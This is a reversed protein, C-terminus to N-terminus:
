LHARLSSDQDTKECPTLSPTPPAGPSGVKSHGGAAKIAQVSTDLVSVKFVRRRSVRCRKSAPGQHGNQMVSHCCGSIFWCLERQLGNSYGQLRSSTSTLFVTHPHTPPLLYCLTLPPFRFRHRSFRLNSLFISVVTCALALNFSSFSLSSLAM